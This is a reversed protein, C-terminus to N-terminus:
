IIFNDINITTNNLKSIAELYRLCKNNWDYFRTQYKIKQNNANTVEVDLAMLTNPSSGKMIDAFHNVELSYERELKRCFFGFIMRMFNESNPDFAVEKKPNSCEQNQCYLINKGKMYLVQGSDQDRIQSDSTIELGIERLLTLILENDREEKNM